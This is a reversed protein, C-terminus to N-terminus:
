EERPAGRVYRTVRHYGVLDGDADVDIDYIALVDTTDPIRRVELVEVQVRWGDDTKELGTVGEVARGTLQLLQRAAGAAVSTASMRKDRSAAGDSSSASAPRRASRPANTSKRTSEAPATKKASSTKKAGSTQKAAPTKKASPTQKAAPTKKAASTTKKTASTTKKTAM